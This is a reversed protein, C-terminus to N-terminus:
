FISNKVVESSVFSIALSTYIMSIIYKIVRFIILGFFPTIDIRFYYNASEIMKGFIRRIWKLYPEVLVDVFVLKDLYM